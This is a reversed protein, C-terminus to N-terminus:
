YHHYVLVVASRAQGAAPEVGVKRTRSGEVTFGRGPVAFDEPDEGDPWRAVALFGATADSEVSLEGGEGPEVRIVEPAVITVSAMATASAAMASSPVGLALLVAALRLPRM